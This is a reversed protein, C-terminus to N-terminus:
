VQIQLNQCKNDRSNVSCIRCIETLSTLSIQLPLEGGLTIEHVRLVRIAYCDLIITVPLMFRREKM